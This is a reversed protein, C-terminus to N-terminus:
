MCVYLHGDIVILKMGEKKIRKGLVLMCTCTCSCWRFVRGIVDYPIHRVPLKDGQWYGIFNTTQEVSMLFCLVEAPNLTIKTPFWTYSWSLAPHNSKCEMPNKTAGFLATSAYVITTIVPYCLCCFIPWWQCNMSTSIIADGVTCISIALPDHQQTISFFLVITGWLEEREYFSFWHLHSM